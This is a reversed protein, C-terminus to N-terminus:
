PTGSREVITFRLRERSWMTPLPLKLSREPRQLALFKTAFFCTSLFPKLKAKSEHPGQRHLNTEARQGTRKVLALPNQVLLHLLYVHGIGVKMMESVWTRCYTTRHRRHKYLCSMLSMVVHIFSYTCQNFLRASQRHWLLHLFPFGLHVLLMWYGHALAPLFLM